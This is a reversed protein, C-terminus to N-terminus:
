YKLYGFTPYELMKSNNNRSNKSKKQPGYKTHIFAYRINNEKKLNNSSKKLNFKMAYMEHLM